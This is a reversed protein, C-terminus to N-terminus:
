RAPEFRVITLVNNVNDAVFRIKDGEKIRGLWAKEQVRFVMTMAPMGLNELPGHALTVKGGAKDVKKVLGDVWTSSMPTSMPTSMAAHDHGGHGGMMAPEAAFGSASLTVAAAVVSLKLLSKM